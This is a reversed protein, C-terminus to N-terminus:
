ESAAGTANGTGRAAAASRIRELFAFTVVGVAPDGQDRQFRRIAGRTQPGILGDIPGPDYGLDTLHSQVLGVLSNTLTPAIVREPGDPGQVCDRLTLVEVSLPHSFVCPRGPDCAVKEQAIEPPERVQTPDIPVKAEEPRDKANKDGAELDVQVSERM